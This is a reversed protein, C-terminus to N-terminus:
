TLRRILIEGTVGWRKEQSEKWVQKDEDFLADKLAKVLNDTDPTQQHPQGNLSKQKKKPWSKPMALIFVVHLEESAFDFGAAQALIKVDRKWQMYREFLDKKDPNFRSKYNLRPAPMPQIHLSVNRSIRQGQGAEEKPAKNREMNALYGQYEAHTM